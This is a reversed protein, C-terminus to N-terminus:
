LDKDKLLMLLEKESLNEVESKDYISLFYVMKEKIVIHTIARAGGSKGKGKSAIAIRIKYCDNGIPTGIFPNEKIQQGLNNFEAHLSPYKKVLRKLLRLFKPTIIIEFM